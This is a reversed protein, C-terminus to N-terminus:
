TVGDLTVSLDTRPFGYRHVDGNVAAKRGMAADVKDWDIQPSTQAAAVTAFATAVAAVLLSVVPRVIVEEPKAQHRIAAPAASCAREHRRASSLSFIFPRRSGRM